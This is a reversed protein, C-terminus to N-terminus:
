GVHTLVIGEATQAANIFCNGADIFANYADLKRIFKAPEDKNKFLSQLAHDYAIEMERKIATLKRAQKMVLRRQTTGIDQAMLEFELASKNLLHGLYKVYSDPNNGAEWSITRPVLYISRAIAHLDVSFQHVSERDIPTIFVKSLRKVTHKYNERSDGYLMRMEQIYALWKEQTPETELLIRDLCDTMNVLALAGTNFFAYFVDDRPAILQRISEPIV